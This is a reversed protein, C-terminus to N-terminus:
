IESTKVYDREPESSFEVHETCLAYREYMEYVKRMLKKISCTCNPTKGCGLVSFLVLTLIFCCHTRPLERSPFRAALRPEMSEITQISLSSAGYIGTSKWGLATRSGTSCTSGRNACRRPCDCGMSCPLPVSAFTSRDSTAACLNMLLPIRSSCMWRMWYRTCAFPRITLENSCIDM